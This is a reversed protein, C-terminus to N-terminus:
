RVVDVSLVTAGYEDVCDQGSPCVARGALLPTSGKYAAALSAAAAGTPFSRFAGEARPDLASLDRQRPSVIVLLQGPGPPDTVDFVIPRKPLALEEGPRLRIAGSETNPYLQMLTGDSGHALVYLYGEREARVRFSLQDVGIRLVAKDASARLGFAPSSARAVRDFEAAVDFVAAAPPAAVTTAAPPASSSEGPAAAPPQATAAPQIPELNIVDNWYVLVLVLLSLAAGAAAWVPWRRKPDDSDTASPTAQAPGAAAPAPRASGGAHRAGAALGLERAFEAVSQPRQEPRVSLAHDVAALFRESYGRGAAAQVLPVYHDALLRGVSPPPTKGIIAGYIVAALAYVDTWPGQRMDPVEAYQEVPAYGPKLIVTLAQTMDGIVRRAAGFDLLLPRQHSGGLLMVNDPAIDRHYCQDAHLVALAECLPSLMAALWAEDPPAPLERLVDKLTRGEYYPMVMYATGNAEWFRYVKVLAPHDFKALLKAENVFSRLGAEFTERHRESKVQVQSAGSRAALSSPMYEKLAVSRELIHDTALYVIGFGGEGLLATIEFEDLKTGVPLGNEHQALPTPPEAGFLTPAMAFTAQQTPVDDVEAQPPPQPPEQPRIRTRDDDEDGASM